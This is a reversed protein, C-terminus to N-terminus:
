TAVDIYVPVTPRGTADAIRGLVRQQGGTTSMMGPIADILAQQRRLLQRARFLFEDPVPGLDGPPAWTALAGGLRGRVLREAEAVHTELDGLASDWGSVVPENESM